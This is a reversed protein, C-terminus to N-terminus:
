EFHGHITIVWPCLSVSAGAHRQRMGNEPCQDDKEGKCSQVHIGRYNYIIEQITEKPSKTLNLKKLLRLDKSKKQFFDHFPCNEGMKSCNGRIKQMIGPVNFLESFPQNDSFNSWCNWYEKNGVKEVKKPLAKRLLFDHQTKNFEGKRVNNLTELLLSDKEVVSHPVFERIWLFFIM